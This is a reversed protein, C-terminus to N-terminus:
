RPMSAPGSTAPPDVVVVDGPRLGLRTAQEASLRLAAIAEGDLVAPRTAPEGRVVEAPPNQTLYAKLFDEMKAGSARASIVQAELRAARLHARLWLGSLLAIIVLMLLAVVLFFRTNDEPRPGQQPGAHTPDPEAPGGAPSTQTM